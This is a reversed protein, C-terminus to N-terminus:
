DKSRFDTSINRLTSPTTYNSNNEYFIKSGKNLLVSVRLVDLARGYGEGEFSSILEELKKLSIFPKYTYEELLKINKISFLKPRMKELQKRVTKINGYDRMDSLLSLGFDFYPSLELNGEKNIIFLFNNLHRDENVLLADLALLKVLYDTNDSQTIENITDIFNSQSENFNNGYIHTISNYGQQSLISYLTIQSRGMSFDISYCGTSITETDLDGINCMFYPVKLEEPMDCLGIVKSCLEEAVGEYGLFDEKVWEDGIVWKRQNGKSTSILHRENEVSVEITELKRM